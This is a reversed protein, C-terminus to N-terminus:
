ELGVVRAGLLEADRADHSAVIVIREKERERIFTAAQARADDDLGAFPEDLLLVDHPALLARALAIRRQQGGSCTEAAQGLAAELGLQALLAPAESYATSGRPVGIRANDLASAQPCLRNEQFVMGIVPQIGAPVTAMTGSDSMELGAIIRLLTTKGYGSPAMLCLPTGAYATFSVDHPGTGGSFTRTLRSVHLESLKANAAGHRASSLSSEPRSSPEPQVAVTSAQGDPRTGRMPKGAHKAGRVDGSLKRAGHVLVWIVLRECVLSLVVVALTWAFLDATDFHVKATYIQEGLSGFPIGIVEAAVGAKWGMGLGLRAAAQLCPLLQPLVVLRFRRWCPVDLLTAMEARAPDLGALGSGVNEYVIPAVVLAVVLVALNGASLWILALVTFSAVPVSRMLAMIPALLEEIRRFRAAGSAGAAGVLCGIAAGGLIRTASFLVRQWFEVTVALQGFRVVVDAPGPLLLESDLAGSALQWVVLWVVIAWLALRPRPQFGPRARKGQGDSAM